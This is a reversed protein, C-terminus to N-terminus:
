ILLAHWGRDEQKRPSATVPMVISVGVNDTCRRGALPTDCALGVYILCARM